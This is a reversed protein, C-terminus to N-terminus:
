SSLREIAVISHSGQKVFSLAFEAAHVIHGCGLTGTGQGRQCYIEYDRFYEGCNPCRMREGLILTISWYLTISVGWFLISPLPM